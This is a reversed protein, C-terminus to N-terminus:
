SEHTNEKHNHDCHKHNKYTCYLTTGLAPLICCVVHFKFGFALVSAVGFWSLEELKVDFFHELLHEVGEFFITTGILVIWFEKRLIFSFIKKLM